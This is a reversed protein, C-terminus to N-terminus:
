RKFEHRWSLFGFAEVDRSDGAPQISQVGVNFVLPEGVKRGIWGLEIAQYTAPVSSM